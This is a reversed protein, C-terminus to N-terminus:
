FMLDIRSQKTDLPKKKIVQINKLFRGFLKQTLNKPQPRLEAANKEKDKCHKPGSNEEVTYRLQCSRQGNCEKRFPRLTCRRCDFNEFNGASRGRVRDLSLPHERELEDATAGDASLVTGKAQRPQYVIMTVIRDKFNSDTDTYVFM